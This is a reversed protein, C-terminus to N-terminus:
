HGAAVLGWRRLQEKAGELSDITEVFAGAAILQPHMVRQAASRAGGSKKLEIGHLRGWLFYLDPIGAKTGMQKLWKGELAAETEDERKGNNPTHWWVVGPLQAPVVNWEGARPHKKGFREGGYWICLARQIHFELIKPAM